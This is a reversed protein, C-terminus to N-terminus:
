FPVENKSLTITVFPLLLEVTWMDNRYPSVEARVGIAFLSPKFEVRFETIDFHEDQAVFGCQRHIAFARIRSREHM